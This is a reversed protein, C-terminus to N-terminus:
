WNYSHTQVVHYETRVNQDSIFQFILLEEGSDSQFHQKLQGVKEEIHENEEADNRKIFSGLLVCSTNQTWTVLVTGASM